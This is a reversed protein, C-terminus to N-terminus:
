PEGEAIISMPPFAKQDVWYDVVDRLLDATLHPCSCTFGLAKLKAGNLAVHHRSLQEAFLYPSLPSLSIDAYRLLEEWIELHDQNAQEVLAEPSMHQALLDLAKNAYKVRLGPFLRVLADNLKGQTTDHDDVIHYCEHPAGACVVHWIGAAADQGHVTHQRLGPGWLCQMAQDHFVYVAACALRQMLGREDGLGYVIPLRVISWPLAACASSRLFAEAEAHYQGLVTCAEEPVVREREDPLPPTGSSASSATRASCRGSFVEATSVEVYRECGAAAAETACLQRLRLINREYCPEMLGCATEAACNVVVQFPVDQTVQAHPSFARQVHLPLSLDAQIVEVGPRTLLKMRERSLHCMSPVRKDVVRIFRALHFDVLYQLLHLGVMGLGGLLLVTPADADEAPPDAHCSPQQPAAGGSAVGGGGDGSSSGRRDRLSSTRQNNHM